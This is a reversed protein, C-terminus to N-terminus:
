ERRKRDIEYTATVLLNSWARVLETGGLEKEVRKVFAQATQQHQDYFLRNFIVKGPKTLLSRLDQLFEEQESKEPLLEGLYMDVLILDFKDKQNKVWEFADAQIIKLQSLRDLDFYKKGLTIMAPDLEVGVIQAQPWQKAVLRAVTGGGLGLILVNSIPFQNDSIRKLGKRWIDRLVGGTQILGGCMIKYRGATRVVQIQGNISSEVKELVEQRFFSTVSM